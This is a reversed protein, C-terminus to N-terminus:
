TATKVQGLGMATRYGIGAFPAFATLLGVYRRWRPRTDLIAFRCRGVFGGVRGHRGSAFSVLETQLSYRSVVVRDRVFAQLEEPLPSPAFSNWLSILGGFLMEPIPLPVSYADDGFPAEPAPSRRFVTPTLFRLTVHQPPRTRAVREALTEYSLHAAQPHESPSSAVSTVEFPVGTLHMMSGCWRPALANMLRSSLTEEISTIRLYCRQTPRIPLPGSQPQVMPCWLPSVTFPRARNPRHLRRALQPDLRQLQDLFWAHAARGLFAPVTAPTTPELTLVLATLM